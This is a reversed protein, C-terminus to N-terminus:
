KGSLHKLIFVRPEPNTVSFIKTLLSHLFYADYGM